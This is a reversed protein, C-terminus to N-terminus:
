SGKGTTPPNRGSQHALFEFARHVEVGSLQAIRAIRQVVHPDEAAFVGFWTHMSPLYCSQLYRVAEGDANMRESTSALAAHVARADETTMATARCTAMYTMLDPM